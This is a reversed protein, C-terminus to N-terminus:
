QALLLLELNRLQNEIQSDYFQMHDNHSQFGRARCLVINTTATKRPLSSVWCSVIITRSLAGELSFRKDNLGFFLQQSIGHYIVNKVFAVASTWKLIVHFEKRWAFRSVSRTKHMLSSKCVIIFRGWIKMCIMLQRKFAPIECLEFRQQCLSQMCEIKWALFSSSFMFVRFSIWWVWSCAAWLFFSKLSDFSHVSIFIWSKM